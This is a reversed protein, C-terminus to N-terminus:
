EEIFKIKSATYTSLAAQNAQPELAAAWEDLLPQYREQGLEYAVSEQYDAFVEPDALIDLPNILYYFNDDEIVQPQGVVAALATEVYTQGYYMAYAENLVVDYYGDEQRTVEAPAEGTAEADKRALDSEYEFVLDEIAEGAKLRTLYGEARTKLAANEDDIAKQLAEQDAYEESDFDLASAKGLAMTQVQAYHEAFYDKVEGESLVQTGGEGYLAEYLQEKALQYEFYLALSSEAIGNDNYYQTYTSVNSQANAAATQRDEASLALGLEDMKGWVAYYERAMNQANQSMWDTAQLGELEMKMVKAPDQTAISQPAEAPETAEIGAAEQMAALDADQQEQLKTVAQGYSALLMQIYLGAPMTREGLTYVWSTDAMQCGALLLLVALLAALIRIHGKM